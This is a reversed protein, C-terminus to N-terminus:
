GIYEKITSIMKDVEIPKAIHTNMGADICKEIDETFANATMAIIPVNHADERELGRLLHTAQLGDMVPMMVDMLVIDYYHLEKESFKNLAELGNGAIEVEMGENILLRSAIEQNLENDEVLLARKGKISVEELKPKGSNETENVNVTTELTEIEVRITFETGEGPASVCDITGGMLRVLNHVIALGLGTGVKNVSNADQTFADYMIKQFEKTMGVGTDRIIVQLDVSHEKQQMVDLLFEIRGGVPTYKSANSLLNMVVQQIHLRDVNVMYGRYKDPDRNCYFTIGNKDCMVHALTIINELMDGFSAKSKRIELKGSEIKSMDLIDNLLGLMYSSSSRIKNIDRELAAPDDLEKSALEAIGMIGNMPTRLDHSMRSLFDSKAYNAKEAQKIALALKENQQNEMMTIATIDTCVFILVNANKELYYVKEQKIEISGDETRTHYTFSVEDTDRLKDKIAAVNFEEQIKDKDSDPIKKKIFESIFNSYDITESEPIWKLHEAKNIFQVVGTLTNLWFIYEVDENLVSDKTIYSITQSTIDKLYCYAEIDGSTPNFALEMCFSFWHLAGNSYQYCFDCEKQRTGNKFSIILEERELTTAFGKNQDRTTILERIFNLESVASTGSLGKNFDSVNIFRELVINKTLNLRAYAPYNQQVFSQYKMIGEYEREARKQSTVDTSSCIARVVKENETKIARYVIHKWRDTLVNNRIDEIGIPIDIEISKKTKGDKFDQLMRHFQERYERQIVGSYIWGMAVDEKKIDLLSNDSASVNEADDPSKVDDLEATDDVAELEELLFDKDEPVSVSRNSFDCEWYVTESQDMVAHLMKRNEILQEEINKRKKIEFIIFAISVVLATVLLFSLVVVLFISNSDKFQEKLYFTDNPLQQKKISFRSMVKSDFYYKAPCDTNISLYRPDVGEFLEWIREVAISAMEKYSSCYGGLIGDEISSFSCSFVPVAKQTCCELLRGYKDNVSQDSSHNISLYFVVSSEEISGITDYLYKLGTKNVNIEKFNIGKFKMPLDSFIKTGMQGMFSDDTVLYITQVHPFLRKALLVNEDFYLVERIGTVNEYSMGEIILESSSVGVFVIPTEYFLENNYKICFDFAENGSAIVADFSNEKIYDATRNYFKKYDDKEISEETDMFQYYLNYGAKSDNKLSDILVRNVDSAASFSGLYLVKKISNKTASFANQILIINLVLIVTQRIRSRIFRFVRERKM